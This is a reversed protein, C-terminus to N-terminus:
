RYGHKTITVGTIIAPRKKNYFLDSSFSASTFTKLLKKEPFIKKNGM